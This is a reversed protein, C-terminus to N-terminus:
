RVLDHLIKLAELKQEPTVEEAELVEVCGKRIAEKTRQEERRKQEQFVKHKQRTEKAKEAPTM